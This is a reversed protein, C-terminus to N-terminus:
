FLCKKGEMYSFIHAVVDVTWGNGLMKYRQFNSVGYTYGIPVTQLKECEEPTFKRLEGHVNIKNNEIWSGNSTITPTIDFFKKGKNYGHARQDVYVMTRQSRGRLYDNRGCKAYTATLCYALQRDVMGSEIIDELVVNRKDPQPFPWNAWYMRKRSQASVLSSDVKVPRIGIRDSIVDLWEQKMCVNELFVYKPKIAQVISIFELVLQSRPDKFGLSKGCISFGQCPSGGMVLDIKPLTGIWDSWEKIDGLQITSPFNKQTISICYKDTESSFYQDVPIGAKKLAIQGCSM